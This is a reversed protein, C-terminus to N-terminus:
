QKKRANAKANATANALPKSPEEKANPIASAVDTAAKMLALFPDLKVTANMEIDTRDKWGAKNKLWFMRDAGGHKRADVFISYEMATVGEAKKLQAYASFTTIGYEEGYKAVTHNYLTDPHIGLMTAITAGDCGAQLYANVTDWKIEVRPRGDKNIEGDVRGKKAM